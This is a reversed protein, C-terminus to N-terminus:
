SWRWAHGAIICPSLNISCTYATQTDEREGWGGKTAGTVCSAAECSCVKWVRRKPDYMKKTGKARRNHKEELQAQKMKKLLPSCSFRFFKFLGLRRLYSAASSTSGARYCPLLLFCLLSPLLCFESISPWSVHIWLSPSCCCEGVRGALVWVHTCARM